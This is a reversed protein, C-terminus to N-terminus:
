PWCSGASRYPSALRRLATATLAALADHRTQRQRGPPPLRRCSLRITMSSLSSPGGVSNSSASSCPRVRAREPMTVACGDGNRGPYQSTAAAPFTPAALTPSRSIWITGFSDTGRSINMAPYALGRLHRASSTLTVSIARGPALMQAHATAGYPALWVGLAAAPSRPPPPSTAPVAHRSSSDSWSCRCRPRREGEFDPVVLESHIDRLVPDQPCCALPHEHNGSHVFLCLAHQPPQQPFEGLHSREGTALVDWCPLGRPEVRAVLRRQPNGFQHEAGGRNLM